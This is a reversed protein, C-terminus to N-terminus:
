GEYYVVEDTFAVQTGLKWIYELKHNRDDQSWWFDVNTEEGDLDMGVYLNSRRALVVDGTGTLGPVVFIPINTYLVRGDSGDEPAVHRNNLDFIEHQYTDMYDRGIFMALDDADRIGEPVNDIFSKMIAVVNAETWATGSSVKTADSAAKIHQTLGSCSLTGNGRWITVPFRLLM